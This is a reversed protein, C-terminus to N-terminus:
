VPLPSEPPSEPPSTGDNLVHPLHKHKNKTKIEKKIREPFNFSIQEILSNYNNIITNLHENSMNDNIISSEIESCLKLFKISMTNFIDAREAIKLTNQIAILVAVIANVIINVPKLATENFAGNIIAMSSSPIILIVLFIQKIFAYYAGSRNCLVSMVYCYDKYKIYLQIPEM